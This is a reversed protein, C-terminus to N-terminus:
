LGNFAGSGAANKEKRKEVDIYDRLSIICDNPMDYVSPIKFKASAQAITQADELGTLYSNAKGSKPRNNQKIWTEFEDKLHM